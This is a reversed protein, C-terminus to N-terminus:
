KSYITQNIKLKQMRYRLQRLSMGLARAAQTKNGFSAQLADEIATRENVTVWGYPRAQPEG